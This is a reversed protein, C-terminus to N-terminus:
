MMQELLQLSLSLKLQEYCVAYYVTHISCAAVQKRYGVSDRNLLIM